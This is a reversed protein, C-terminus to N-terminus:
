SISHHSLQLPPMGTTREVWNKECCFSNVKHAKQNGSPFQCSIDGALSSTM